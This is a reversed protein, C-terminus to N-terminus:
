IQKNGDGTQGKTAAAAPIDALGVKERAGKRWNGLSSASHDPDGQSKRGGTQVEGSPVEM